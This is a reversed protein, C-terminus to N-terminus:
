IHIVEAFKLAGIKAAIGGWSLGVGFGAMVVERDKSTGDFESDALLFPITSGNTNGYKGINVPIKDMPIGARKAIYKLMYANAQHLLFNDINEKAMGHYALLDEILIPIQKVAFTFVGMGDMYMDDEGRRSGAGDDVRKKTEENSPKRSGGAPIILSESGAGDSKVIFSTKGADEEREFATASGGDSIIFTLGKDEPSVYSRLTDGILLLIKNCAGSEILNAALFYGNVFASCGLNIDYTVCDEKLGLRDQLIGSTAPM